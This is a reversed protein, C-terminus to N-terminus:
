KIYAFNLDSYKERLKNLVDESLAKNLHLAMLCGDPNITKIEENIDAGHEILDNILHNITANDTPGDIELLPLGHNMLICQGNVNISKIKITGGGISIGNLEIHRDGQKAKILACNPHEGLSRGTEEIFRVGIGEDKAIDVANKIREDFTSYDLLGGIIAVDTGHGLHTQAFSEYYHVEIDEPEGQLVMRAANGIKVAGATHSSSPGMMVPGIIDFASQYDHKRAM